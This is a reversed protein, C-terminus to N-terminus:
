FWRGKDLFHLLRLVVALIYLIAVTIRLQNETKDPTQFFDPISGSMSWSTWWNCLYRWTRSQPLTRRNTPTSKSGIMSRNQGSVVWAGNNRPLLAVVIRSVRISRAFFGKINTTPSSTTMPTPISHVQPLLTSSLDSLILVSKSILSTRTIGLGANNYPSFRLRRTALSFIGSNALWFTLVRNQSIYKECWYMSTSVTSVAISKGVINCAAPHFASKASRQFPQLPWPMQICTAGIADGCVRAAADNRVFANFDASKTAFWVSKLGTSSGSSGTLVTTMLTSDCGNQNSHSWVGLFKQEKLTARTALIM